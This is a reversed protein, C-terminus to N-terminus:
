QNARWEAMATEWELMSQGYTDLADLYEAPTSCVNKLLRNNAKVKREINIIRDEITREPPQPATGDQASTSWNPTAATSIFAALMAIALIWATIKTKM